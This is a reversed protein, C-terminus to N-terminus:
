EIFHLLSILRSTISFELEVDASFIGSHFSGRVNSSLKGRVPLYPSTALYEYHGIASTSRIIPFVQSATPNTSRVIGTLTETPPPFPDVVRETLLDVERMNPHVNDSRHLPPRDSVDVAQM